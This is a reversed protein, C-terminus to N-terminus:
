NLGAFYQSDIDQNHSFQTFRNTWERIISNQGTQESIRLTWQAPLTLGDVEQFNSFSETLNIRVTYRAQTSTEPTNGMGGKISIQYQTMVHRFNELDFYLTIKVDGGRKRTQYTLAHFKQGDHKKLGLYKLKPNRRGVDALAWNTSLVGGLLGETIIHKSRFVFEGL